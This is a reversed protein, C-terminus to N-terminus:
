SCVNVMLSSVPDLSPHLVVYIVSYHRDHLVSTAACVKEERRKLDATKPISRRGGSSPQLESMWKARFASLESQFMLFWSCFEISLNQEYSIWYEWVKPWDAKVSEVTMRSQQFNQVWCYFPKWVNNHWGGSKWLPFYRCLSSKILLWSILSYLEVKCLLISGRLSLPDITLPYPSMIWWLLQKTVIQITYLVIYIFTVHSPSMSWEPFDKWQCLLVFKSSLNYFTIRSWM